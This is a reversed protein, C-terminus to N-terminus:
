FYETTYHLFWNLFCKQNVPSINLSQLLQRHITLVKLYRTYRMSKEYISGQVNELKKIMSSSPNVADLGYLLTPQCIM